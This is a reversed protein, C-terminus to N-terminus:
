DLDVYRVLIRCSAGEFVADAHLVYESTEGGAEILSYDIRVSSDHYDGYIELHTPRYESSFDLGFEDFLKRLLVCAEKHSYRKYLYYNLQEFERKSLRDLVLKLELELARKRWPSISM